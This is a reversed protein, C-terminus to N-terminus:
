IGASGLGPAFILDIGHVAAALRVEVLEPVMSDNTPADIPSPTPTVRSCNVELVALGGNNGDSAAMSVFLKDMATSFVFAEIIGGVTETQDNLQM